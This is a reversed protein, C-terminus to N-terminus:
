LELQTVSLESRNTLLNRIKRHSRSQLNDGGGGGGGTILHQFLLVRPFAGIILRVLRLPTEPLGTSYCQHLGRYFLFFHFFGLLTMGHPNM